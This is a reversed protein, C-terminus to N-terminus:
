SRVGDTVEREGTITKGFFISNALGSLDIEYDIGMTMAVDKGFYIYNNVPMVWHLFDGQFTQKEQRHRDKPLGLGLGRM